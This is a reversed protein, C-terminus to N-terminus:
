LWQVKITYTISDGIQLPQATQTGSFFMNGATSADFIAYEDITRAVTAAVPTGVWTVSDNTVSTTSVTLTCVGRTEVETSLTTDGIAATRAAATAGTGYAIYKPPNTTTGSVQKAVIQKGLSTVVANVAFAM